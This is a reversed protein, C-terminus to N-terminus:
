GPPVPSSPWIQWSPMLFLKKVGLTNLCHPLPWSLYPSRWGQVHELRVPCPIFCRSGAQVNQSCLVPSSGEPPGTWETNNQAEAQRHFYNIGGGMGREGRVKRGKSDWRVTRRKWQLRQAPGKGVSKITSTAPSDRMFLFTKVPFCSNNPESPNNGRGQM